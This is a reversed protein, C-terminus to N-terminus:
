GLSAANGFCTLHDARNVYLAQWVALDGSDMRRLHTVGCNVHGVNESVRPTLRTLLAGLTAGHGIFAMRRATGNVASWLALVRQRVSDANEPYAPFGERSALSKEFTIREGFRLRYEDLNIGRFEEFASDVVIEGFRQDVLIPSPIREEDCISPWITQIARLFPSVVIADPAFASLVGILEVAQREGLPTLPPNARDRVERAGDDTATNYAEAHRILIIDTTM